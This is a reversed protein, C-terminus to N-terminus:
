GVLAPCAMETFGTVEFRSANASPLHELRKPNTSLLDQFRDALLGFVLDNYSMGQEPLGISVLSTSGTNPKKLDPKPNAELVFLNGAEDARVDIRVLTKLDLEDYIQRALSCLEERVPDGAPLLAARDTTIAKNDMSTFVHEGPLLKRELPSFAFPEDLEELRGGRCVVKGCVGVCYERGSLYKEILVPRHTLANIERALPGVEGATDVKHVHLSARGSVPKVIFPGSYEGFARRMSDALPRGSPQWTTFPSTPVGLAQLHRKFADKEDLLSAQFPAHGVYPVGLMELLSATHCVPHEGQVGGTNLWAFHIRERRLFAPLNMDDAALYVHHFGLERLTEQIDCAVERYSKWPRTNGARYLVAGPQEKDGGHIVAIRLRPAWERVREQLDFM